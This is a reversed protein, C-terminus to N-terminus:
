HQRASVWGRPSCVEQLFVSVLCLQFRTVDLTYWSVGLEPDQSAVCQVAQTRLLLRKM